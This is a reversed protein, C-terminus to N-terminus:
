KVNRRMCINKHADLRSAIRCLNEENIPLGVFEEELKQLFLRNDKTDDMPIYIVGEVLNYYVGSNGFPRWHAHWAQDWFNFAADRAFNNGTQCYGQWAQRAYTLYNAMENRLTFM